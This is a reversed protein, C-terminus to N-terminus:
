AETSTPGSHPPPRVPWYDNVQKGDCAGVACHELERFAFEFGDTPKDSPTEMRIIVRELAQIIWRVMLPVIPFSFSTGSGFHSTSVKFRWSRNFLIEVPLNEYDQPGPPQPPLVKSKRTDLREVISFSIGGNNIHFYVQELTTTKSM